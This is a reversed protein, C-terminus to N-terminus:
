LYESAPAAIDVTNSFIITFTANLNTGLGNIVAITVVEIGAAIETSDVPASPSKAQAQEFNRFASFLQLNERWRWVTTPM